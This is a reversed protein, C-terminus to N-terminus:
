VSSSAAAVPATPVLHPSQLPSQLMCWPPFCNGHHGQCLRPPLLDDEQGAVHHVIHQAGNLPKLLLCSWCWGKGWFPTKVRVVRVALKVTQKWGQLSLPYTKAGNFSQRFAPSSSFSCGAASPATATPSPGTAAGLLKVWEVSSVWSCFSQTLLMGLCWCCDCSCILAIAPPISSWLAQAQCLSLLSSLSWSGLFYNWVLCCLTFTNVSCTLWTVVRSATLLVMGLNALRVLGLGAGHAIRSWCSWGLVLVLDLGAGLVLWLLLDLGSWAQNGLGAALRSLGQHFFFSGVSCSEALGPIYKQVQSIFCAHFCCSTLASDASFGWPSKPPPPPNHLGFKAIATIPTEVYLKAGLFRLYVTDWSYILLIIISSFPFFWCSCFEVLVLM